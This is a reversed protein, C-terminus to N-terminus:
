RIGGGKRLKRLLQPSPLVATRGSLRPISKSKLDDKGVIILDIVRNKEM